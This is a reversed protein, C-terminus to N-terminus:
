FTSVGPIIDEVIVQVHSIHYETSSNNSEAIKKIAEAASLDPVKIADDIDNTTSTGSSSIVYVYKRRTDGKCWVVYSDKLVKKLESPSNDDM